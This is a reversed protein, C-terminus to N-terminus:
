AVDGVEFRREAVKLQEEIQELAVRRVEVNEEAARTSLYAAAVELGGTEHALELDALGVHAFLQVEVRGLAAAREM